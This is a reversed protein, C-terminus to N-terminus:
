VPDPNDLLTFRDADRWAPFKERYRRLKDLSLTATLTEPATGARALTRGLYDFVVSDGSSEVGNGDRGSRNVGAVYSQNEVARAPLLSTWASHRATPWNAVYLLLDYDNRNRSWVPFRLDYCVLPCIRWDDIQMILREQGPSFNRHEDGMRFLHRKDYHHLEGNKTAWLLRNFHRGGDNIILSGCIDVEHETSQERLWQSTPGDVTEAHEAADLTFGTSFTEPLVLLRCHSAAAIRDTLQQRNAAPDHWVTDFQLLALTLEPRTTM